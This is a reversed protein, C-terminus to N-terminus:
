KAVDLYFIEFTPTTFPTSKTFYFYLSFPRRLGGKRMGSLVGSQVPTLVRSCPYTM